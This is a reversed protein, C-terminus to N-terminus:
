QIDYVGVTSFYNVFSDWQITQKAKLSMNDDKFISTKKRIVPPYKLLNRVTGNLRTTKIDDKFIWSEGEEQFFGLLKGVGSVYESIKSYGKFNNEQEKFLKMQMLFHEYDENSMTMEKSVKDIRSTSQSISDILNKLAESYVQYETEEGKGHPNLLTVGAEDAELLVYGHAFYMYAEKDVQVLHRHTLGEMGEYVDPTSVTMPYGAKHAALIIAQVDAIPLEQLKINPSFKRETPADSFNGAEDLYLYNDQLRNGVLTQMADHPDGGIIDTYDGGKDKTPIPKDKEDTKTNSKLKAYAKEIIAVWLEQSADATIYQNPPTSTMGNIDTQSLYKRVLLKKDVEVVVPVGDQYLTVEIVQEKEVLMEEILHRTKPQALAGMAALLYCDGIENQQIDEPQIGKHTLPTGTHSKYALKSGEQTDFTSEENGSTVNEEKEWQWIGDGDGGAKDIKQRVSAISMKLSTLQESIREKHKANAETWKKAQWQDFQASSGKEKEQEAVQDKYADIVTQWQGVYDVQVGKELAEFDKKYASFDTYVATEFASAQTSYTYLTMEQEERTTNLADAAQRLEEPYLAEKAKTQAASRHERLDVEQTRLREAVQRAAELAAQRETFDAQYPADLIDGADEGEYNNPLDELIAQPKELYRLAGHLAKQAAMVQEMTQTLAEVDDETPEEIVFATDQSLAALLDEAKAYHSGQTTKYSMGPLYQALATEDLKIFAYDDKKTYHAKAAELGEANSLDLHEQEAAPRYQIIFDRGFLEVVQKQDEPQFQLQTEFIVTTGEGKIQGDLPAEQYADDNRKYRYTIQTWDECPESLTLQIRLTTNPLYARAIGGDPQTPHPRLLVMATPQCTPPSQIDSPPSAYAQAQLQTTPPSVTQATDSAEGSSPTTPPSPPQPQLFYPTRAPRSIGGKGIRDTTEHTNLSSSTQEQLHHQAKM